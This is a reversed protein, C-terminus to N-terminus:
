LVDVCTTAGEVLLRVRGVPDLYPQVDLVLGAEARDDTVSDRQAGVGVRQVAGKADLGAQVPVLRQV